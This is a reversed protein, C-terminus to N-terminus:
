LFPEPDGKGERLIKPAGNSLDILTSPEQGCFGGDIILDVQKGLVERIAEPEILPMKTNPLILSTSMLPEDLADLLAVAINHAPIRLGITKRNPHQLRRPVEKTANLLFTYPGPTHTKLIRFAANDIQAYSSLESLDRCILTFHHNKDLRRIRRIRDLADKDGIHCGLAYGSDTPYVIVGGQKIVAAAQRLLHTQPTVPHVRLFLSM